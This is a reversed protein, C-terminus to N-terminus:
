TPLLQTESIGNLVSKPVKVLPRYVNNFSLFGYINPYPLGLSPNVNYKLNLPGVYLPTFLGMTGITAFKFPPSVFM